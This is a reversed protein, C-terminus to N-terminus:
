GNTFVGLRSLSAARPVRKVLANTVVDIQNYQTKSEQIIRKLVRTSGTFDNNLHIYIIKHM